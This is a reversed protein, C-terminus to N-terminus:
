RNCRLSSLKKLARACSTARCSAFSIRSSPQSLSYVQRRRPAQDAADNAFGAVRDALVLGVVGFVTRDLGLAAQMARHEACRVAAREDLAIDMGLAVAPEELRDSALGTTVDIGLVRARNTQRQSVVDKFSVNLVDGPLDNAIGHCPALQRLGLRASHRDSIQDSRLAHDVVLPDLVVLGIKSLVPLPM